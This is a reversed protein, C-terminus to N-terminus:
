NLTKKIEYKEIQNEFNINLLNIQLLTKSDALKLFSIYFILHIKMLASLNLKYNILKKIKLIVFSKLKTYNLKNNKQKIKINRRLLCVKDKKKFYIKIEENTQM